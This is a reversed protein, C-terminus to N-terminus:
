LVRLIIEILDCSFQFNLRNEAFSDVLFYFIKILIQPFTLRVNSKVFISLHQKNWLASFAFAFRSEIETL